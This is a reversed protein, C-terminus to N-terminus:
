KEANSRSFELESIPPNTICPVGHKDGLSIKNCSACLIANLDSLSEFVQARDGGRVRAMFRGGRHWVYKIGLNKAVTKLDCFLKFKEIPLAENIFIKFQKKKQVRTSLESGLAALDLDDTCFRTRRSKAQLVRNMMSFSSLKIAIRGPANVPEVTLTISLPRGLIIDTIMLSPDLAALVTHAVRNYDNVPGDIYNTITLEGNSVVEAGDIMLSPSSSSSNTPPSFPQYSKLCASPHFSVTSNDGREGALNNNNTNNNNNNDESCTKPSCLTVLKKSLEDITRRLECLELTIKGLLIEQHKITSEMSAIRLDLDGLSGAEAAPSSVLRTLFENLRDDIIATFSDLLVLSSNNNNNNNIKNSNNSKSVHVSTLTDANSVNSFNSLFKHGHLNSPTNSDNNKSVAPVGQTMTVRSVATSTKSPAQPGEVRQIDTTAPTTHVTTTTTSRRMSTKPVASSLRATNEKEKASLKKQKCCFCLMVFENKGASIRFLCKAHFLKSCGNCPTLPYGHRAITFFKACREGIADSAQPTTM